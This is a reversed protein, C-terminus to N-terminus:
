RGSTRPSMPAKATSRRAGPAVASRTNTADVSSMTDLLPTTTTRNTRRVPRVRAAARDARYSRRTRRPSLTVRCAHPPTEDRAPNSIAGASEPGAYPPQAPLARTAGRRTSATMAHRRGRLGGPPAARRGEQKQDTRDPTGPQDRHGAVYRRSRSASGMWQLTPPNQTRVRWASTTATSCSGRNTRGPTHLGSLGALCASRAPGAERWRDPWAPIRGSWVLSRRATLWTKVEWSTDASRERACNWM